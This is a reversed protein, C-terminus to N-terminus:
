QENTNGNDKVGYNDVFSKFANVFDDLNQLDSPLIEICREVWDAMCIAKVSKMKEAVISSIDTLERLKKMADPNKIFKLMEKKTNPLM